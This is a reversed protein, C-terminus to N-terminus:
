VRILSERLYKSRYHFFIYFPNVLFNNPPENTIFFDSDGYQDIKRIPNIITPNGLTNLSIISTGSQTESAATITHTIKVAM